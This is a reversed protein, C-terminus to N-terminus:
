QRTYGQIVIQLTSVAAPSNFQISAGPPLFIDTTECVAGVLSAAFLTNGTVGASNISEMPPTSGDPSDRWVSVNAAVGAWGAPDLTDTQAASALRVSPTGGTFNYRVTSLVTEVTSRIKLSNGAAIAINYSLQFRRYAGSQGMPERVDGAIWVPQIGKPIDGGYQMRFLRRARDWTGNLSGVLSLGASPPTPPATV